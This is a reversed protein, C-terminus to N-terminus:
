FSQYVYATYVRFSPWAFDCAAAQKLPFGHFCYYSLIHLPSAITGLKKGLKNGFLHNPFFLSPPCLPPQKKPMNSKFKHVHSCPQRNYTKKRHKLHPFISQKVWGHPAWTSAGKRLRTRISGLCTPVIHEEHTRCDKFYFLDATVCLTQYRVNNM